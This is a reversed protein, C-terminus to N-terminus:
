VRHERLGWLRITPQPMSSPQPVPQPLGPGFASEAGRPVEEGGRVVVAAAVHVDEPVVPGFVEEMHRRAIHYGKLGVRARDARRAVVVALHEDECRGVLGFGVAGQQQVVAHFKGTLSEASREVSVISGM